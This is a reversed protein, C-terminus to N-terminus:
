IFHLLVYVCLFYEFLVLTQHYFSNLPSSLKHFQREQYQQYLLINDILNNAMNHNPHQHNHLNNHHNIYNINVINIKNLNVIKRM